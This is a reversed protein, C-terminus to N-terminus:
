FISQQIIKPMIFLFSVAMLLAGISLTIPFIYSHTSFGNLTALMLPVQITMLLIGTIYHSTKSFSLTCSFFTLNLSLLFLCGLIYFFASMTQTFQVIFFSSILLYPFILLVMFSVIKLLFYSTITHNNGIWQEIIGSSLDNSVSKNIEQIFLLSPLVMLITLIISDQNKLHATQLSFVFIVTLVLVIVSFVSKKLNKFFLIGTRKFLSRNVM